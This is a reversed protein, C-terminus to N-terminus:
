QLGTTVNDSRAQFEPDIIQGDIIKAPVYVSSPPAAGIELLFLGIALTIFSVIAGAIHGKKIGGGESTDKALKNILALTILGALIAILIVLYRKM